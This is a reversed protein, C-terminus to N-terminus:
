RSAYYFENELAEDMKDIQASTVNNSYISKKLDAVRHLVRVTGKMRADMGNRTAEKVATTLRESSFSRLGGEFLEDLVVSLAKAAPVLEVWGNLIAAQKRVESNLLELTTRQEETWPRQRQQRAMVVFKKLELPHSVDVEGSLGLERQLFEVHRMMHFGKRVSGHDVM